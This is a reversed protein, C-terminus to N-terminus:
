QKAVQVPSMLYGILDRVQEETLNQLLGDPMASINSEKISEISERSISVEDTATRLLLRESDKQMVLGSIARGDDTLITSMRYEKGVVASPDIINSLLYPLSSRQAGTLEPGIPKGEGFLKHCQSCTNEYLSRGKSLDAMAINEPTLRQSWSQITAEREATSENINGWVQNLKEILQQDGLDRIQRAHTAKIDERSLTNKGSAIEDLVVNAFTKRSVLMELVTPRDVPQFRKFKQMLIKAITPDDYLALGKAATLNIVRTDILSECIKRLDDPKADILSELAQQRDRNTARSDFIIQRIQELALGDGFLVNLQQIVIQLESSSSLGAAFERWHEPEPAKLWGNFGASIGQLVSAKRKPTFTLASKLLQDLALPHQKVKSALCRATSATLHQWATSESLRVLQIADQDGLPSIGFWVLLNMDLDFQDEM